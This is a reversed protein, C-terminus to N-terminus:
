LGLDVLHEGRLREGLRTVFVWAARALEDSVSGVKVIKLRSQALMFGGCSIQVVRVSPHFMNLALHHDLYRALADTFPHEDPEQGTRWGWGDDANGGALRRRERVDNEWPGSNSSRYLENSQEGRRFFRRLDQPAITVDMSRLGPDRSMGDNDSEEDSDLGGSREKRPIPANFSLSISFDPGKGPLGATKIWDEWVTVLTRTGLNLKSVRCDFTTSIWDGIVGKLAQPMRLLLLPLYIFQGRDPRMEPPKGDSQMAWANTESRRERVAGPHGPLMLAVYSANEHKIEIWLGRKHTESLRNWQRMVSDTLGSGGDQETYFLDRDLLRQAHFWRIKVSRLSGVQGAPTDTSELGIQIGRVVDGVLTDRLRHALQALRATNLEQRGVYLPSVRHTSFTTNLFPPLVEEPTDSDDDALDNRSEGPGRQM